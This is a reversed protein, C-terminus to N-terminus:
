NGEYEEAVQEDAFGAWKMLGAATSIIDGDTFYLAKVVDVARKAEPAGLYEALDADFKPWEEPSGIPEGSANKQFVGQCCEALVLTEVFAGTDGGRTKKARETHRKIQAQTPPSYRVFVDDEYRPVRLDLHLKERIEQRQARLGALPSSPAADVQGSHQEADFDDNYNDTM